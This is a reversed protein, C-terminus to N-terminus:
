LKNEELKKFDLDEVWDGIKIKYDGGNARTTPFHEAWKFFIEYIETPTTGDYWNDNKMMHHFHNCFRDGPHTPFSAYASSALSAHERIKQGWLGSRFDRHQKNARWWAGFQHDIRKINLLQKKSYEFNSQLTEVVDSRKEAYELIFEIVAGHAGPWKQQDLLSFAGGCLFGGKKIKPLWDLLAGKVVKYDPTVDIYVWDFYQDEFMEAAQCSFNEIIKINALNGFKDYVEQKAKKTDWLESSRECLDWPDILYLEKPNKTKLLIEANAGADVGIEAVIASSPLSEYLDVLSM